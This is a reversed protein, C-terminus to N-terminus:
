LGLGLGLRLVFGLGVTGGLFVRVNQLPGRSPGTLLSYGCFWMFVCVGQMMFRAQECIYNIILTVFPTYVYWGQYNSALESGSAPLSRVVM